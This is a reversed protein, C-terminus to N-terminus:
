SISIPTSPISRKKAVVFPKKAPASSQKQEKRLWCDPSDHRVMDQTTLIAIEPLHSGISEVKNDVAKLRKTLHLLMVEKDPFKLALRHSEALAERVGAHVRTPANSGEVFILYGKM